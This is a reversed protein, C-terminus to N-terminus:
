RRLGLSAILESHSTPNTRAIYKLLKRRRCVLKILGNRSHFDKPFLKLHAAIQEIRKGLLAIQVQSSGSDKETIAYKKITDQKVKKDLM